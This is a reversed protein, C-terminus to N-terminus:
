VIRRDLTGMVPLAEWATGYVFPLSTQMFLLTPITAELLEGRSGKRGM